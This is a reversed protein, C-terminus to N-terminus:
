GLLHRAVVAADVHKAGNERLLGAASELTAGTTLVDDILIINKGKVVTPNKLSLSSEMQKMRETRRKGIQDVQSTRIISQNMSLGRHKSFSEAILVAQDYSRARIRKSATPVPMVITDEPLFPLTASLLEGFERAYARKREYKMQFILQKLTESYPGLWWVRRLKSKSQCSSCIRQQSTLKNCIYCRSEVEPMVTQSCSFCLMFGEVKCIHCELPSLASIIYELPTKVM